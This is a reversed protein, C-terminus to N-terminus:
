SFSWHIAIPLSTLLSDWRGPCRGSVRPEPLAIYDRVFTMVDNVSWAESVLGVFCALVYLAYCGVHIWIIKNIPSTWGVSFEPKRITGSQDTLDFTLRMSLQNNCAAPWLPLQPSSAHKQARKTKKRPKRPAYTPLTNFSEVTQPTESPLTL